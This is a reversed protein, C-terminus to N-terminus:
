LFNLVFINCCCPFAKWSWIKKLFTFCWIIHFVNTQKWFWTYIFTTYFPKQFCNSTSWNIKQTIQLLHKHLDFTTNNSLSFYLTSLILSFIVSTVIKIDTFYTMNFNFFRLNWTLCNIYYSTQLHYELPFM